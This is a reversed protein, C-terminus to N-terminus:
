SLNLDMTGIDDELLNLDLQRILAYCKLILDVIQILLAKKPLLYEQQGPRSLLATELNSAAVYIVSEFRTHGLM